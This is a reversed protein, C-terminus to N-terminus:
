PSGEAGKATTSTTAGAHKLSAPLLEDPTVLPVDPDSKLIVSVHEIRAYDVFTDPNIISDASTGERQWASPHHGFMKM